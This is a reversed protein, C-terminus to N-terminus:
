KWDAPISAQNDFNGNLFCDLGIATPYQNWLDPADGTLEVCSNFTERFTTVLPRNDFFGLPIEGTLGYCHYFLNSFRTVLPTNEIPFLNPPISELLVCVTFAAQFSTASICNDFLGDPITKINTRGFIGLFDDAITTYDLIGIPIKTIPIDFFTQRLNVLLALSGYSDTVIDTLNSCGWFSLQKLGSTGWNLVKSPYTKFAGNNVYFSEMLGMITITYTGATDYINTADPSNYTTPNTVTGDGWDVTADVLYASGFPLTVSESTLTTDIEIQFPIPQEETLGNLSVSNVVKDLATFTLIANKVGSPNIGGKFNVYTGKSEGSEIILQTDTLVFEDVDGTIALDITVTDESNNTISYYQSPNRADQYNWTGFDKNTLPIITVNVEGKVDYQITIRGGTYNPLDKTILLSNDSIFTTGSELYESIIKNSDEDIYQTIVGTGNLNRVRLESNLKDGLKFNELYSPPIKTNDNIWLLENTNSITSWMSNPNNDYSWMEEPDNDTQIMADTSVDSHLTTIAGQSNTTTPSTWNPSNWEHIGIKISNYTGDLSPKLVGFSSSVGFYLTADSWETINDSLTVPLSNLLIDNFYLDLNNVNGKINLKGNTVPGAYPIDFRQYVGLDDFLHIYFKKVGNAYYFNFKYDKNPLIASIFYLNVPETSYNSFIVEIDLGSITDGFYNSPPSSLYENNVKICKVGDVVGSHLTTVVGQSDTTTSGTGEPFTWEHIGIKISNYTIIESKCDFLLELADVNPFGITMTETVLLINDLYLSVENGVGRVNIIGSSPINGGSLVNQGDGNSRFGMFVVTDIMIFSISNGLEDQGVQIQGTRNSYKFEFEFGDFTSGFYNGAPSSMYENDDAICTVGVLESKKLTTIIGNNNTTTSGTGEPFTWESDNIKIYSIGSDLQGSKIGNENLGNFYLEGYAVLSLDYDVIETGLLKDNFYCKVNTGNGIFKINGTTPLASGYNFVIITSGNNGYSINISTPTTSFTISENNGLLIGQSIIANNSNDRNDYDIEVNILNLNDPFYRNKNSIPFGEWLAVDSHHHANSVENGISYIPNSINLGTIFSNLGNAVSWTWDLLGQVNNYISVTDKKIFFGVINAFQPDADFPYWYLSFIDGISLNISPTLTQINYPSNADTNSIDISDLLTIKTGGNIEYKCTYKRVRYEDFDVNNGCTFDINEVTHAADATFSIKIYANESIDATEVPAPTETYNDDANIFNLVNSTGFSTTNDVVYITNAITGKVKRISDLVGDLYFQVDATKEGDNDPDGSFSIITTRIEGPPIIFSTPTASFESSGIIKIDVIVDTDSNDNTISYNM